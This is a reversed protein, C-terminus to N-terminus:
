RRGSRQALVDLARLAHPHGPSLRLVEQFAAEAASLDGSNFLCVGLNYWCLVYDPQLRLAARFHGIAEGYRAPSQALANGLNNHAVPFDPRLHLAMKLHVIADDLRGPTQALANGMNNHTGPNDPDLRLAAEFEAIADTMRGPMRSWVMGLNNHAMRCDPNLALTSLYLTEDDHFIRCHSWTFAGLLAALAAVAGYGMWRTPPMVSRWGATLGAAVLALLGLDPPYQWHDWVWSYFAGYLNVFGLVPFLSGVFLLFAALPARTRRRLGWLAAGVGLVGLPYLWQWWVGADVTWRPYVFNLGAPWLANGAYFWTARGAVLVREPVTLSFDEGQAGLYNQEMWSSFLGTAIGLAFWPLLPLVERRGDLRGRKWWFIVLLAAPLTATMTKCALSLVFLATAAVYTRFRRSQDFRLYVLAAGLYFGLSLTNKQESIWAVSQVHVPHLAFLLAAVWGTGAYRGPRDDPPRAAAAGDDEEVLRRVVFGFLVASGAHLLVSVLHYGIARDGWLGHQVWFASHLLPYYQQVAGPETWIRALGALSRLKPGTVYDSDNWIFGGSLAPLYAVVTACFVLTAPVLTGVSGAAPGTKRSPRAKPM